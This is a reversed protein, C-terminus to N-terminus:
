SFKTQKLNCGQFNIDNCNTESFDANQFISNIGQAKILCSGSFDVNAYNTNRAFDASHLNCHTLNLFHHSKVEDEIWENKRHGIVYLAAQIDRSITKPVDGPKYPSNERIYATLVEMIPRHDILSGKAIRELAYIAGLRVEVAVETEEITKNEVVKKVVRYAGLQEIAQTYLTTYHAQEDLKTKEQAIAMQMQATKTQTDALIARWILLPGGVLATLAFAINRAGEFSNDHAADNQDNLIRGDSAISSLEILLNIVIKSYYVLAFTLIMAVLICAIQSFYNYVKDEHVDINSNLQGSIKDTNKIQKSM